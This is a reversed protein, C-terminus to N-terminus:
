IPAEENEQLNIIGSFTYMDKVPAITVASLLVKSTESLKLVHDLHMSVQKIALKAKLNREGDLADTQM